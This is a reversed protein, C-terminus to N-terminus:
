PTRNPLICSLLSRNRRPARKLRNSLDGGDVKREDDHVPDNISNVPPANIADNSALRDSPVPGYLQELAGYVTLPRHVSGNKQTLVEPTVVKTCPKMFWADHKIQEITLREKADKAMLGTLIAELDHNVPVNAPMILDENAISDFLRMIVAGEFPYKGSIMNYLTVGCSWVDAAFGSYQKTNGSVLEPAQFKPTGQVIQCHDNSQFLSLEEAVGFDSIKLSFDPSLLLNAPKIDKHIVGVSHLYELGCILEKFYRHADWEHLRKDVASDLLQQVSGMCFEMVMYLKNKEDDRFVEILRIVNNHDVKRLIKIEREVNEAGNPIKRLRNGKIIKVARRVLTHQEVVEKVKAYSGEGIKEGFLYGNLIKPKKEAFVEEVFNGPAMREFLLDEGSIISMIRDASLAIDCDFEETYESRSPGCHMHWQQVSARLKDATDSTGGGCEGEDETSDEGGVSLKLQNSSGEPWGQLHRSEQGPSDEGGLRREMVNESMGVNLDAHAMVGMDM